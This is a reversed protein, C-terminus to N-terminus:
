QYSIGIKTLHRQRNQKIENWLYRILIEDEPTQVHKNVTCLFDSERGLRITYIQLTRQILAKV